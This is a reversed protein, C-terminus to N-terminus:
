GGVQASVFVYDTTVIGTLTITAAQPEHVRLRSRRPRAAGPRPHLPVEEHAQAGPDSYLVATSSRAPPLVSVAQVLWIRDNARVHWTLSGFSRDFDFGGVNAATFMFPTGLIVQDGRVELQGLRGATFRRAGAELEGTALAAVHVTLYGLDKTNWLVASDLM